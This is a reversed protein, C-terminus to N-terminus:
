STAVVHSEARRGHSRRGPGPHRRRDGRSEGRRSRRSGPDHLVCSWLDARVGPRRSRPAGGGAVRGVAIVGRRALRKALMARARVLRSSVTGEPCASNGRGGGQPDPGGPRVPRPRGPVPRAAPEVGRRPDAAPRGLAHPVAAAPEPMDTVQKEQARRKARTGAGEPGDPPGRRLALQRGEGAARGVGGERALVLFTAQFADEADHHDRLVRRCVGWVMAATGGSSCRSPRRRGPPQRVVGATARRDPRAGERLLGESRLHHIVQSM